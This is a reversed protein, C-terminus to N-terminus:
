YWAGRKRAAPSPVIGAPLKKPNPNSYAPYSGGAGRPQAAKSAASHTKAALNAMHEVHRVHAMHAAHSQPTVLGPVPPGYPQNGVGGHQNIPPMVPNKKPQAM